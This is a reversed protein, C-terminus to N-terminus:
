LSTLHLSMSSLCVFFICTKHGTESTKEFANDTKDIELRLPPQEAYFNRMCSYLQIQPDWFAEFFIKDIM